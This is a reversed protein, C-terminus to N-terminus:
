VRADGSRKLGLWAEIRRGYQAFHRRRGHLVRSVSFQRAAETATLGLAQLVGDRLTLDPHPPNFMRAM